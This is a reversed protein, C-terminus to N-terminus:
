RALVRGDCVDHTVGNLAPVGSPAGVQSGNGQRDHGGDGDRRQLRLIQPAVREVVREDRDSVSQWATGRRFNRDEGFLLETGLRM